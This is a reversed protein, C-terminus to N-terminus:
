TDITMNRTVYVHFVNQVCNIRYLCDWLAYLSGGELVRLGFIGDLNMVHYNEAYYGVLKEIATLLKSLTVHNDADAITSSVLSLVFLTPFVVGIRKLM